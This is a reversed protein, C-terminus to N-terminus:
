HPAAIEQVSLYHDVAPKLLTQARGSPWRIEVKEVETEAGLGFHLRKDSTSMFGVSGSVQNWLVRGARTTLKATAGVADRNSATGTLALGLWHRGPNGSNLLIRPRENLATVVLDLSGDNNLDGIASGRHYGLRNFDAGLEASIDTFKRGALNRLLTDHQRTGEGV